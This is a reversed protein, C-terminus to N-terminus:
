FGVDRVVISEECAKMLSSSSASNSNTLSCIYISVLCIFRSSCYLDSMIQLRSFCRLSKSFKVLCSYTHRLADWSSSYRARKWASAITSDFLTFWTSQPQSEQTNRYINHIIAVRQVGIEVFKSIHLIREYQKTSRVNSSFDWCLHLLSTTWYLRHPVHLAKMWDFQMENWRLRLHYCDEWKDKSDIFIELCTNRDRETTTPVSHLTLVLLRQAVSTTTAPVAQAFPRFSWLRVRACV